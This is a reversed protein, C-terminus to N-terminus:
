FAHNSPTFSCRFGLNNPAFTKPYLLWASYIGGRREPTNPQWRRGMPDPATGHFLRNQSFNGGRHMGVNSVSGVEEWRLLGFGLQDYYAAGYDRAPLFALQNTAPAPSPPYLYPTIRPYHDMSWTANVQQICALFGCYALTSYTLGADAGNPDVWSNINGAMDWVIQGNALQFTRKQWYDEHAKNLCNPNRTGFCGDADNPSAALFDQGAQGWCIMGVPGSVCETYGDSHGTPIHGNGVIGGSWNAATLEISKAVTMWEPNSILHYDTGLANCHNRANFYDIQGWPLDQARSEAWYQNGPDNGFNKGDVRAGTSKHTPKMHYKAICFDKTTGVLPDKAVPIYGEPCCPRGPISAMYIWNTGNCFKMVKEVPDFIQYGEEGATCAVDGLCGIKYWRAGDCFEMTKRDIANNYRQQGAVSCTESPRQAERVVGLTMWHTGNCFQLENVSQSPIVRYREKGLDTAPCTEVVRPAASSLAPTLLITLIAIYFYKKV